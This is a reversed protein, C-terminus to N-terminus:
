RKARLARVMSLDARGVEGTLVLLTVYALGVITAVAPTAIRGFRPMVTGLAVCAAVAAGVRAATAPPIFAGAHRRVM